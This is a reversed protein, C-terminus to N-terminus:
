HSTDESLEKKVMHDLLFQQVEDSELLLLKKRDLVSKLLSSMSLMESSEQSSNSGEFVDDTIPSDSQDQRPESEPTPSSHRSPNASKADGFDDKKLKKAADSGKRRKSRKEGNEKEKMKNSDEDVSKKRSGSSPMRKPKSSLEDSLCQSNYVNEDMRNEKISASTVAREKGGKGPFCSNRQVLVGAM